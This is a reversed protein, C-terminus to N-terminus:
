KSRRYRCSELRPGSVACPEELPSTVGILLERSRAGFDRLDDGHCRTAPHIDPPQDPSRVRILLLEALLFVGLERLDGVRAAALDQEILPDPSEARMVLLHDDDLMAPAGALAHCENPPDIEAMSSVVVLIV